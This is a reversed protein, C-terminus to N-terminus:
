PDWVGLVLDEAIKQNRVNAFKSKVHAPRYYEEFQNAPHTNKKIIIIIIM